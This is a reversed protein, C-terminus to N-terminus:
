FQIVNQLQRVLRINSYVAIRHYLITGKYSKSNFNIKKKGTKLFNRVGIQDTNGNILENQANKGGYENLNIGICMLEGNYEDGIYPFSIKNGDRGRNRISQNSWCNDKCICNEHLVVDKGNILINKSSYLKELKKIIDNM